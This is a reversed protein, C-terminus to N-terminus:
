NFPLEEDVSDPINMFDGSTPAVAPAPAPAPAAYNQPASAAPAAPATSSGGNRSEFPKVETISIFGPAYSGDERKIGRGDEYGALSMFPPRGEHNNAAAIAPALADIAAIAAEGRVTAWFSNQTEYTGDQKKRSESVRISLRGNENKIQWITANMSIRM